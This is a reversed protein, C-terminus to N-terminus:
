NATNKRKSREVIEEVQRKHIDGNEVTGPLEQQEAAPEYLVTVTGPTDAASMQYKELDRLGKIDPFKVTFALEWRKGVGRKGKEERRIAKFGGVESVKIECAIDVLKSCKLEMSSAALEGDLDQGHTFSAPQIVEGNDDTWKMAKAVANSYNAQFKAWGSKNTARGIAKM